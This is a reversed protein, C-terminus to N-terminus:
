VEDINKNYSKGKNIIYDHIGFVLEKYMIPNINKGIKYLIFFDGYTINDVILRAKRTDVNRTQARLLYVRFKPVFLFLARYILSCFSVLLLVFLWYWLVLFFKENLVNLPLICLADKTQISGSPGYKRYLCKTLKPFVRTMPNIFSYSAYAIGYMSFNGTIFWDIFYIQGIVNLFNLIECISYRVVYINHACRGKLLYHILRDRTVTNWNPSQIPGPLGTLLLKLRGGEWTKWLFRPLYFIMAQMCFVVCVWQYYSQRNVNEFKEMVQGLGPLVDDTLTKM